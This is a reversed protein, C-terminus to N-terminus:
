GAIMQGDKSMPRTTQILPSTFLMEVQELNVPAGGM